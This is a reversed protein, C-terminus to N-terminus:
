MHKFTFLVRFPTIELHRRRSRASCSERMGRPLAPAGPLLRLDAGPARWCAADWCGVDLSRAAGNRRFVESLVRTVEIILWVLETLSIHNLVNSFVLSLNHM